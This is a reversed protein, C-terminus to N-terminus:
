RLGKGKKFRRVKTRVNKMPSSTNFQIMRGLTYKEYWPEGYLEDDSLHAILALIQATTTDLEDLLAAYQWENYERQFHQALLGLQNWKFGTDPFDVPLNQSTLTHWKLVLQGWGILYAVTDCVSIQTGKVNGELSLERTMHEPVARYDCMLKAHADRIAQGLADKSQPISSM